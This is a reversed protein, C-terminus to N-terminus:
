KPDDDYLDPQAALFIKCSLMWEDFFQHNGNFEQPEQYRLKNLMQAPPPNQPTPPIPPRLTPPTPPTPPTISPLLPSQNTPTFNFVTPFTPSIAIPSGPPVLTGAFPIYPDPNNNIIAGLPPQYNLLKSLEQHIVEEEPNYEEEELEEEKNDKDEKIPSAPRETTAISTSAPLATQHTPPIL